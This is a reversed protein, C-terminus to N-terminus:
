RRKSLKELKVIKGEIDSLTSEIRRIERLNDIDRFLSSIGSVLHFEQVEICDGYFAIFHCPIAQDYFRDLREIWKCETLSSPSFSSSPILIFAIGFIASVPLNKAMETLLRDAEDEADPISITCVIVSDVFHPSSILKALDKERGLKSGIVRSLSNEIHFQAASSLTKWNLNEILTIHNTM